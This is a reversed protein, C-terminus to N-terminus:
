LAIVEGAVVEDSFATETELALKPIFKIGLQFKANMNICYDNQIFLEKVVKDQLLTYALDKAIDSSSIVNDVRGNSFQINFKYGAKRSAGVKKFDSTDLNLLQESAISRKLLIRIIPLYKNWIQLYM